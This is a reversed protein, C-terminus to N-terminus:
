RPAEDRRLDAYEPHKDIYAAIFSCQPVVSRGAAREADLATRALASGIGRGGYAPDVVTHTFTAVTGVHEYSLYGAQAGDVTAVFRHEDPVETIVPADDAM